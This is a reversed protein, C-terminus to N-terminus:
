WSGEGIDIDENNWLYLDDRDFKLPLIYSLRQDELQGHRLAFVKGKEKRKWGCKTYFSGLKPHCFLLGLDYGESKIVENAKEMLLKGLGKGQLEPKIAVDGIGAVLYTKDRHKVLRKTVGAHGILEDDEFMLICTVLDPNTYVSNRYNPNDSYVNILFKKIEDKQVKSLDSVEYARHTIETETM